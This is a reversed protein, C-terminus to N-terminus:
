FLGGHKEYSPCGDKGWMGNCIDWKCREKLIFNSAQECQALLVRKSAPKSSTSKVSGPAPQKSDNAAGNDAKRKLEEAAQQKIREIERDKATKSAPSKQPAKAVKKQSPALSPPIPPATLSPVEATEVPKREEVGSSHAPVESAPGTARGSATDQPQPNVATAARPALSTTQADEAPPKGDYPLEGSSIGSRAAAPSTPESASRPADVPDKSPVAAVTAANGSTKKLWSTAFLGAAAGFSFIGILMALISLRRISQPSLQRMTRAHPNGTGPSTNATPVDDM